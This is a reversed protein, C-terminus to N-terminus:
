AGMMLGATQMINDLQLCERNEEPVTELKTFPFREFIIKCAQSEKPHTHRSKTQLLPPFGIKFIRFSLGHRKLRRSFATCRV